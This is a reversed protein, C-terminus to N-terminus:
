GSEPQTRTKRRKFRGVMGGAAPADDVCGCGSGGGRCAAPAPAPAAEGDGDGDFGVRLGSAADLGCCPIMAAISAIALPVFAVSPFPAATAVVARGAAVTATALPAAEAVGVAVAAARGAATVATAM